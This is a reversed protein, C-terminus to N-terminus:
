GAISKLTKVTRAAENAQFRIPQKDKYSHNYIKELMELYMERKSYAVLLDRCRSANTTLRTADFGEIQCVAIIAQLFGQGKLDINILLMQTYVTAVFSGWDEHTASYTGDKFSDSIKGFATMGNLLAATVSISMNHSKSFNLVLQYDDKTRAWKEAYDRISWGKAACNVIAIDFDIDTVFYYYTLKLQEAFFFRHQGEKIVLQKKKDRVCVIPFVPLMGYKKISDRLGKHEGPKLNRNDHEDRKLLDYNKSAVVSPIKPDRAM